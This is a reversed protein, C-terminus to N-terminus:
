GSKLVRELGSVQMLHEVQRPINFFRLERGGAQARRLWEVMLALGASDARTVGALDVRIPGEGALIPGDASLLAPVTDFTLEGRVARSGDSKGEIPVTM